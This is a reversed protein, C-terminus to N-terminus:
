CRMRPLGSIATAPAASARRRTRCTRRDRFSSARMSLATTKGAAPPGIIVYWPLDYLYNKGGAKKLKALADRLREALVSADGVPEQLLSDELAQAQKRRRRWRLGYFLAICFLIGGIVAARFWIEACLSLGTMPLGFWIAACLASLGIVILPIRM